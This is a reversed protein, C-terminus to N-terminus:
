VAGAGCMHLQVPVAKGGAGAPATSPPQLGQKIDIMQELQAKL